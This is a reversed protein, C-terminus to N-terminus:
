NAQNHHRRESEVPLLPIDNRQFGIVNHTFYREAPVLITRECEPNRGRATGGIINVNVTAPSEKADIMTFGTVWSQRADM